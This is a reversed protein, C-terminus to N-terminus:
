IRLDLSQIAGVLARQTAEDAVYQAILGRIKSMFDLLAEIPVADRNEIAALKAQAKTTVDIASLVEGAHPPRMGESQALIRQQGDLGDWLEVAEHYRRLADDTIQRALAIERTLDLAAVDTSTRAGTRQTLTTM